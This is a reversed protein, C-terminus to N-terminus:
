KSQVEKRLHDREKQIDGTQSLKDRMDYLENQLHEIQDRLGSNTGKEIMLENRIDDDKNSKEFKQKKKFNDFDQSIQKLELDKHTLQDEVNELKKRM